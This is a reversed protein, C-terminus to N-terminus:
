KQLGLGTDTRRESTEGAAGGREATTGAQGAGRDTHVGSRSWGTGRREGRRARDNFGDASLWSMHTKMYWERLLFWGTGHTENAVDTRPAPGPFPHHHSAAREVSVPSV